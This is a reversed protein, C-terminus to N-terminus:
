FNFKICWKMFMKGWEGARECFAHEMAITFFSKSSFFQESSCSNFNVIKCGLGLIQM